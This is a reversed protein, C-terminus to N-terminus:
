RYSYYIDVFHSNAFVSPITFRTGVEAKYVILQPPAM